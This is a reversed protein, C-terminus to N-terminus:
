RRTTSASARRREAGRGARRAARRTVIEADFAEDVEEASQTAYRFDTYFVRAATPACSRSAARGTYGTLYRLNAAGEVILADLGEARRDARALAGAREGSM